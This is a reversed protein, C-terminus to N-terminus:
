PATGGGGEFSQDHLKWYAPTGKLLENKQALDIAKQGAKNSRALFNTWRRSIAPTEALPDAGMELLLTVIEPTSSYRAALMLPTLGDNSKANVEAGQELSEKVAPLDKTKIAMILGAPWPPATPEKVPEQALGCSTVLLCM